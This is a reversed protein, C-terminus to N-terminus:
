GIIQVEMQLRVGSDREVTKQIHAIVSEVDASTAKGLNVIFNAHQESVQADGVRYGKLNSETILKAASQNPPNRFVSGANPLKLPHKEQRKKLMEHMQQLSTERDGPPLKWRAGVFWEDAPMNVHRYGIEYETPKRHHIQGDRDISELEVIHNWTEQTYAGANMTLAGGVTGPIGILFEFGTLANEAAFRSLQASLVGAQAYIMGRLNDFKLDDLNNKIIVIAGNFGADRVLINTGAGLFIIPEEKPLMLLFHSLDEVTAPQFLIKAPGGIKWSTYPALVTNESFQGKLSLFNSM